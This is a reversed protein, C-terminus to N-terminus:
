GKVGGIMLGSSLKRRFAYHIVVPPLGSTIPTKIMYNWQAVDSNLLQAPAVPM